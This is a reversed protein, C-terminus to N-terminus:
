VPPLPALHGKFVEGWPGWFDEGCHRLNPSPKTAAAESNLHSEQPSLSAINAGLLKPKGLYIPLLSNSAPMGSEIRTDCSSFDVM